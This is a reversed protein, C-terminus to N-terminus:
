RPVGTEQAVCEVTDALLKNVDQIESKAVKAQLAPLANKAAPGMKRLAAMALFQLDPKQPDTKDLDAVLVPVVKDAASAMDGLVIISSRTLVNDPGNHLAIVADATLFAAAGLHSVLQLAHRQM